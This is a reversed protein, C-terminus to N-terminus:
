KRIKYRDRDAFFDLVKTRCRFAASHVVKDPIFYSDGKKYTKTVGKITLDMEGEIVIGWQAGHSHESVEGIPEIDFFVVQHESSQVIWARLGKFPMDAEPLNKLMESYLIKVDDNPIM